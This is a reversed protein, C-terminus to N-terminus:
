DKNTTRQYTILYVYHFSIANKFGISQMILLFVLLLYSITKIGCKMTLQMGINARELIKSSQSSFIVPKRM